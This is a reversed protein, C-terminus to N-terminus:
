LKKKHKNFLEEDYKPEVMSQTKCNSCLYSVEKM